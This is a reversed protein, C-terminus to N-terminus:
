NLRLECCPTLLWATEAFGIWMAESEFLLSQKRIIPLSATVQSSLFPSFEVSAFTTIPSRGSRRECDSDLPSKKENSRIRRYMGALVHRSEQLEQDERLCWLFSLLLNSM